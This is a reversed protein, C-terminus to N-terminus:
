GMVKDLACVCLDREDKGYDDQAVVHIDVCIGVKTSVTVATGM